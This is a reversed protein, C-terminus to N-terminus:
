RHFPIIPFCLRLQSLPLQAALTDPERPFHVLPTCLEKLSRYGQLRSTLVLPIHILLLLRQSIMLYVLIRWSPQILNSPPTWFDNQVRRSRQYVARLNM